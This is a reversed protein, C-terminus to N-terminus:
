NSEVIKYFMSVHYEDGEIGHDSYGHMQRMLGKINLYGIHNGKIPQIIDAVYNKITIRYYKELVEFEFFVPKKKDAYKEINSTINNFIRNIYDFDMEIMIDPFDVISTDVIYGSQTLFALLESLPDLLAYAAPVIELNNSEPQTTAIFYEFLVDSLSKVQFVKSKAKRLFDLNMEGTKLYNDEVVDLYTSIATLPTRLDHTMGRALAQQAERLDRESAEKQMLKKRMDDIGSALVAMEGDGKVTINTELNGEGIDRVEDKIRGIYFITEKFGSSYIGIMAALGSVVSLFFMFMWFVIRSKSYFMMRTEKDFFTIDEFTGGGFLDSIRMSFTSIDLVSDYILMLNEADYVAVRQIRDTGEWSWFYKSIDESLDSFADEVTIDNELVFNQYDAAISKEKEALVFHVLNNYLADGLGFILFFAVFIGVAIGGLLRKSM